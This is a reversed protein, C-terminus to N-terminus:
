QKSIKYVKEDIKIQYVGGKEDDVYCLVTKYWWDYDIIWWNLRFNEDDEDQTYSILKISNDNLVKQVAVDCDSKDRINWKSNIMDTVEDYRDSESDRFIVVNEDWVKVCYFKDWVMAGFWNQSEVFWWVIKWFTDTNYTEMKTFIATSPSRLVDKVSEKCEDQAGCGALLLCPILFLLKKM